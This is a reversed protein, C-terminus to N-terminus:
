LDVRFFRKLNLRRVCKLRESITSREILSFTLQNRLMGSQTDGKKQKENVFSIWEVNVTTLYKILTNRKM